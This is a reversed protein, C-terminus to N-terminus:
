RSSQRRHHTALSACMEALRRRLSPPEIITVSEGWTVLHWCIEETGGARFRVTLSGDSNETITQSPHLQFAKADPAADADFRLAM